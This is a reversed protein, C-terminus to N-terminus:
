TLLQNYAYYSLHAPASQQLWYQHSAPSPSEPLNTTNVTRLHLTRHTCTKLRIDAAGRRNINFRLLAAHILFNNEASQGPSLGAKRSKLIGERPGLCSEPPRRWPEPIRRDGMEFIGAILKGRCGFQSVYPANIGVKFFAPKTKLRRM